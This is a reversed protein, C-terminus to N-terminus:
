FGYASAFQEAVSRLEKKDEATLDPIFMVHMLTGKAYNSMFVAGSNDVGNIFVENDNSYSTVVIKTIKGGGSFAKTFTYDHQHSKSSILSAGSPVSGVINLKYADDEGDKNSSNLETTTGGSCVAPKTTNTSGTSTISATNTKQDWAVNAGLAESVFRLPVLTSGNQIMASTTLTVKTGSVYATKSGVTIKIINSGKTGTVTQTKQDWSITAGLTEFVGRMPVMTSGNVVIAPQCYNQVEGNIKVIAENFQTTAYASHPTIVTAGTISGGLLALSLMIKTFSTYQHRKRMTKDESAKM